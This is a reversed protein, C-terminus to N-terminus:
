SCIRRRLSRLIVFTSHTMGGRENGSGVDDDGSGGDDDGSGGDDNQPPVVFFRM